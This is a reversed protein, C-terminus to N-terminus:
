IYKKLIAIRSNLDPHITIASVTPNVITKYEKTIKEFERIFANIETKSVKLLKLYYCILIIYDGITKFNIYPLGVELILCQRMPKSADIKRFRTDYVVDNHAIANRLDKLAYVYKYVLERNTDCSLNIGTERSIIERMDITLCSLLYGFDGMTLIEFIAWLPVESYNINNYFHTIKPNDKRYATAISNQISGQLNLKHNQFKKKIDENIGSPANKYSNVVKDYMDSISSSNIKQMITNLAINKLATEIFMIKGYLLSKLKTDYQITANIESYSTFPLRNSSTVFFRYGKYGHFYGTTLLQQKQASGSISIGNDRLHRMLSDTSKYHSSAM